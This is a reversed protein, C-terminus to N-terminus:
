GDSRPESGFANKMFRHHIGFSSQRETRNQDQRGLHRVQLHSSDIQFHRNTCGGNIGRRRRDKLLNALRAQLINNSPAARASPHSAELADRRGRRVCALQRKPQAAYRQNRSPESTETQRESMPKGRFRGRTQNQCCSSWKRGTFLPVSPDSFLS